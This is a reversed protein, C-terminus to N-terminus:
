DGTSSRSASSGCEDPDKWRAVLRRLRLRDSGGLEQDRAGVADGSGRGDVLADVDISPVTRLSALLLNLRRKADEGEELKTLVVLRDEFELKELVQHATSRKRRPRRDGTAVMEEALRAQVYAHM